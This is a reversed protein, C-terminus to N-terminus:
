RISSSRARHLLSCRIVEPHYVDANLHFRVSCPPSNHKLNFCPLPESCVNQLFPTPIYRFPVNVCKCIYLCVRVYVCVCVCARVCAYVCAYVRGSHVPHLTLEWSCVPFPLKCFFFFFGILFLRNCWIWKQQPPYSSKKQKEASLTANM